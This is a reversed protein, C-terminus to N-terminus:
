PSRNATKKRMVIAGTSGAPQAPGRLQQSRGAIGPHASPHTGSHSRGGNTFASRSRCCDVVAAM